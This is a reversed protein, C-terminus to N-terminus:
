KTNDQRFTFCLKPFIDRLPLEFDPWVIARPLQTPLYNGNVIVQGYDPPRLKLPLEFGTGPIAM